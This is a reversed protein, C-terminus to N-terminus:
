GVGPRRWARPVTMMLRKPDMAAEIQAAIENVAVVLASSANAADIDSSSCIWASTASFAERVCRLLLEIRLQQQHSRGSRKWASGASTL